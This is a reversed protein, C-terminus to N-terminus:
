RTEERSDENRQLICAIRSVLLTEGGARNGAFFHFPKNKGDPKPMISQPRNAARNEECNPAFLKRGRAARLLRRHACLLRGSPKYEKSQLWFPRPRCQSDGVGKDLGAGYTSNKLFGFM